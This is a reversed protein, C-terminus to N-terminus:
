AFSHEHRSFCSKTLLNDLRRVEQLACIAVEAHREQMMIRIHDATVQDLRLLSHMASYSLNTVVSGQGSTVESRGRCAFLTLMHVQEEAADISLKQTLLRCM